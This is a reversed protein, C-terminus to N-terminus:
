CYNFHQLLPGLKEDILAKVDSSSQSAWGGVTAHTVFQNKMLEVGFFDEDTTIAKVKEKNAFQIAQTIATDSLSLGIYACLKAVETYTDAVLDEYRIILPMETEPRGITWSEVHEKWSCPWIRGYLCDEIFAKLDGQYGMFNTAYKHYSPLSDHPNRVLYIVKRYNTRYPFHSKIIRPLSASFHRTTFHKFHIDPLFKQLEVLSRIDQQPYLLKALLIRMWTNGSRPYSVLFIDSERIELANLPLTRSLSYKRRKLFLKKRVVEGARQSQELINM